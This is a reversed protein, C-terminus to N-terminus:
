PAGPEPGPETPAMLWLLLVGSCFGGLHAWWAVGGGLGPAYLELTGQLIQMLFWFLAFLIAPVEVFLPIVCFLPILVTIRAAPYSVAYAAIVGAVAGSAGVVPVTSKPYLMTHVFAAAFGCLLYFLVFRVRGLRDEMACGFIWLTWMNLIVHFWGGHLFMSTLISIYNDTELGMGYAWLHDFYRAPILAYESLLQRMQIPELSQEYLFIGANTGILALVIMPFSKCFVSDRLPFM